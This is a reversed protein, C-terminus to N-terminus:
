GEERLESAEVRIGTGVEARPLAPTDLEHVVDKGPPLGEPPGPLPGPENVMWVSVKVRETPDLGPETGEPAMGDALPLAGDLGPWPPDGPADAVGLPEWPEEPDGSTM